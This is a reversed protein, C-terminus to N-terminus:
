DRINILKDVIIKIREAFINDSHAKKNYSVININSFDYRKLANSSYLLSVSNDTKDFFSLFSPYDDLILREIFLIQEGNIINFYIKKVCGIIENNITIIVNDNDIIDM